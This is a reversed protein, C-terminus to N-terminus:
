IWKKRRFYWLMAGSVVLMIGTLWWFQAAPGGPFVPLGVNMGHM